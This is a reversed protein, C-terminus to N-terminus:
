GNIDHDMRNYNDLKKQMQNIKARNSEKLKVKESATATLQQKLPLVRSQKEQMETVIAALQNSLESKREKLQPM